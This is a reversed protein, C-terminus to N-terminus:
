HIRRSQPLGEQPPLPIGLEGCIRDGYEIILRLDSEIAEIETLDNADCAMLRAQLGAVKQVLSALEGVVRVKRGKTLRGGVGRGSVTRFGKEDQSTTAREARNSENREFRASCGEFSEIRSAAESASEAM